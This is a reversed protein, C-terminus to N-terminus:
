NEEEEDDHGEIAPFITGYYCCNGMEIKGKNYLCCLELAKEESEAIVLSNNYFDVLKAIVKISNLHETIDEIECEIFLYIRKM